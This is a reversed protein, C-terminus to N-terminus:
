RKDASPLLSHGAKKWDQTFADLGRDTLPHLYLKELLQPPITVVHAGARAAQLVHIPHRVSACLIKTELQPYNQYIQCLDQILFDGDQSMDDLRGVFPSVYTAGAKAALLGQASSFCLTVNISKGQDHLERCVKLGVRTLPVKVVVNSAIQSLYFAEKKMTDYDMSVVEASVPGTVIQCIEEIVERMPRGTKAMLTPNTTVGDVMGTDM